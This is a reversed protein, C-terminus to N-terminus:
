RRRRDRGEGAVDIGRPQPQVARRAARGPLELVVKRDFVKNAFVKRYM